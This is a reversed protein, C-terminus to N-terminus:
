EGVGKVDVVCSKIPRPHSQRWLNLDVPARGNDGQDDSQGETDLEDQQREVTLVHLADHLLEHLDAGEREREDEPNPLGASDRPRTAQWARVTARYVEAALEGSALSPYLLVHETMRLLASVIAERSPNAPDSMAAEIERATSSAAPTLQRTRKKTTRQTTYKM